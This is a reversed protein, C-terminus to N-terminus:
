YVSTSSVSCKVLKSRSYFVLGRLPLHQPVISDEHLRAPKNLWSTDMAFCTYQLQTSAFNAVDWGPPLPNFIIMITLAVLRGGSRGFPEFVSKVDIDGREWHVQHRESNKWHTCHTDCMWSFRPPFKIYIDLLYGFRVKTLTSANTAM